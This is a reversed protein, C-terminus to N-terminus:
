CRFRLLAKQFICRCFGAFTYIIRKFRLTKRRFLAVTVKRKLFETSGESVGGLKFVEEKTPHKHM